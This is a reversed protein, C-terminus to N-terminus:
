HQTVALLIREHIVPVAILHHRGLERRGRRGVRQSRNVVQGRPERVAHDHLRDGVRELQQRLHDAVGDRIIDELPIIQTLQRVREGVDMERGIRVRHFLGPVPQHKFLQQDEVEPHTQHLVTGALVGSDPHRDIIGALQDFLQRKGQCARLLARNVVTDAIHFFLEAGHVTQDLAVDAGALGGDAGGHTIVADFVAILRGKHRGRINQRMLMVQSKGLQKGIGADRDIQQGARHGGRLLALHAFPEFVAGTIDNDAGVRQQGVARYEHPQTARDRIFLVAEADGLAGSEGGFALVRMDKNQGGRRDGTGEPQDNVAIQIDGDDVLQRGAARLDLGIQDAGILAVARQVEDFLLHVLATLAVNDTRQHFLSRAFVVQM